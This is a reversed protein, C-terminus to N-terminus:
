LGVPHKFSDAIRKVETRGEETLFDKNKMAYALRVSFLVADTYNSEIAGAIEKLAGYTPKDFLLQFYKINKNM